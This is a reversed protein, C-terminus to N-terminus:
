RWRGRFKRGDLDAHAVESETGPGVFAIPNTAVSEVVGKWSFCLGPVEILLGFIVPGLNDRRDTRLHYKMALKKGTIGKPLIWEKM